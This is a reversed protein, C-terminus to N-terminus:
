GYVKEKYELLYDILQDPTLIERDGEVLTNGYQIFDYIVLDIEDENEKVVSIDFGLLELIIYDKDYEDMLNDYFVEIFTEGALGLVNSVESLMRYIHMERKILSIVGNRNM